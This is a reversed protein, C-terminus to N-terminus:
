RLLVLKATAGGGAGQLRALYSGGPAARGSDDRGDWHWHHTGAELTADMLVRVRRGRVDLIELRAPGAGAVEASLGVSPNFPNPAAALRWVAGPMRDEAAAAGGSQAFTFGGGAALRAQFLAGAGEEQLLVWRVWPELLFWVKDQQQQRTIAAACTEGLSCIFSSAAFQCHSAGTVTVLTKWGPLAEYMPVQHAGPPTVCDNAGAFLLAPRDLGACAAIASPNTEAAAFNAVATLSPDGAAALLSCGGGMSHGMVLARPGMRGYFPSAANAGADRATRAAFALDLAFTQHSPFLEGGTRPVVVVCGIAALKQAVWAYVGATMQFGHGFAVAAFGGPPPAAVPQGAGAATAPYYLDVPVARGSRAADSWTQDATGVAYQARAPGALLACLGVAVLLRTGPVLTM